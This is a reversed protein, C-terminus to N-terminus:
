EGLQKYFINAMNQINRSKSKEYANLSLYNLDVLNSNVDKVVNTLNSFFNSLFIFGNKGHDIFDAQTGDAIGCIVPCGNSMSHQITLGGRGPLICLDAKLFANNIENGAVHGHIFIKDNSFKKISNMLPGDGYINLRINFISQEVYDALELVRKSEILRGVYILEMPRKNFDHFERHQKTSFYQRFNPNPNVISNYTVSIKKDDYGLQVYQNKAETSYAFIHDALNTLLKYYKIILSSKKKPNLMGLGWFMVKIGMLKAILIIVPNLILRPNHELIIQKPRSQIMYFIIGFQFVIYSNATGLYINKARKYIENAISSNAIMTDENPHPNGYLVTLEDNILISLKSFFEFRYNM